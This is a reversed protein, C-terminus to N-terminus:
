PQRDFNQALGYERVVFKLRDPLLADRAGFSYVRSLSLKEPAIVDRGAVSM